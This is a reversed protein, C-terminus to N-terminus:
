SGLKKKLLRRFVRSDPSIGSAILERAIREEKIKRQSQQPTERAFTGRVANVLSEMIEKGSM